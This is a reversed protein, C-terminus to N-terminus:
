VANKEDISRKELGFRFPNLVFYKWHNVAASPSPLHGPRPFVALEFAQKLIPKVTPETRTFIGNIFGVSEDPLRKSIV